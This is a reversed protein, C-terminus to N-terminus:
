KLENIINQINIFKEGIIEKVFISSAQLETFGFLTTYENKVIYNTSGKKTGETLCLPKNFLTGKSGIVLLGTPFKRILHASFYKKRLEELEEEKCLGLDVIKEVVLYGIIYNNKQNNQEIIGQHFVLLDGENLRKLFKSKKVGPDCYTPNNFTKYMYYDPFYPDLHCNIGKLQPYIQSFFRNNHVRSRILDYSISEIVEEDDESIPVFDFTLDSMVKDKDCYTDNGIRLLMAKQM